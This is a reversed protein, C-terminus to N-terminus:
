AERRGNRTIFNSCEKWQNAHNIDLTYVARNPSFHRKLPEYTKSIFLPNLFLGGCSIFTFLFGATMKDRTWYSKFLHAGLTAILQGGAGMFLLLVIFFMDVKLHDLLIGKLLFLTLILLLSIHAGKMFGEKLQTFVSKKLDDAKFGEISIPALTEIIAMARPVDKQNFAQKAEEARHFVIKKLPSHPDLMQYGPQGDGDSPKRVFWAAFAEGQHTYCVQYASIKFLEVRQRDVRKVKKNVQALTDELYKKLFEILDQRLLLDALSSDILIENIKGDFVKELFYKSGSLRHLLQGFEDHGFQFSRKLLTFQEILEVAQVVSGTAQCTRCPIEGHGKCQKCIVLGKGACTACHSSGNCKKCLHSGKGNCSLCNNLRGDATKKRGKGMCSM